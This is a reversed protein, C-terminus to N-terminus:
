APKIAYGLYSMWPAGGAKFVWPDLGRAARLLFGPAGGKLAIGQLEQNRLGCAALAELLEAPRIFMKWDHSHIPIKKLVYEMAWVIGVLSLLTRNITEYLLIGGPKLVRASEALAQPFDEMHELVDALLVADFTRSAFPIHAAHGTVLRLLLGQRAAHKRATRVAGASLDMGYVKAGDAAFAEALFGGGCGLDFLKLRGPSTIVRRFYGYRCRNLRLLLGMPGAPDWWSDGLADYYRNDITM